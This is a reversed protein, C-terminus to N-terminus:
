GADPARCAGPPALRSQGAPLARDDLIACGAVPGGACATDCSCVFAALSAELSLLEALKVRRAALDGAAIDRAETCPREPHDILGVFERV